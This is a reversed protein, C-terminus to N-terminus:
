FREIGVIDRRDLHGLFDNIDPLEVEVGPEGLFFLKGLKVAKPGQPNRRPALQSPTWREVTEQTAVRNGRQQDINQSTRVTHGSYFAADELIEREPSGHMLLIAPAVRRLTEAFLEDYRNAIQKLSQAALTFNIGNGRGESYIIDATVLPLTNTFEDATIALNHTRTETSTKARWMAVFQDILPLAAGVGGGEPEALIFLTPYQNGDEARVNMWAPDFVPLPDGEYGVAGTRVSEYVWPFLAASMGLAVSDRQRDSLEAVRELRVPLISWPYDKMFYQRVDWWSPETAAPPRAEAIRIEEQAAEHVAQAKELIKNSKDFARQARDLDLHAKKKASDKAKEDQEVEECMAKVYEVFEADFAVQDAAEDVATATEDLDPLVAAESSSQFPNEVTRLAWDIGLGNGRPSAAFLIAALCPVIQATWYPDAQQTVRGGMSLTAVRHLWTALNIADDHRKIFITPDIRCRIVHDGYDPAEIQRLDIVYNRGVRRKLVHKMFDDKSSIGIAPGPHLILGPALVCRTKGGGTKALLLLNAKSEPAYREGTEQDHYIGVYPTPMPTEYFDPEPLPGFPSSM